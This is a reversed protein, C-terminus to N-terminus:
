PKMERGAIKGRKPFVFASAQTRASRRSEGTIRPGISKVVVLIVADHSEFGGDTFAKLTMLNHVGCGHNYNIPSKFLNGDDNSHVRLHCSRDCQPFMKISFPAMALTLRSPEGHSVYTTWISTLGGLYLQYETKAFYLRIQGSILLM